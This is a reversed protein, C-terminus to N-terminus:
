ILVQIPQIILPETLATPWLDEEVLMILLIGVAMTITIITTTETTEIGILVILGIHIIFPLVAMTDVMDMIPIVGSHTMVMIAEEMSAIILVIGIGLFLDIGGVAIVMALIFMSPLMVIKEGALM